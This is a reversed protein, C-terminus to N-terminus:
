IASPVRGTTLPSSLINAAAAADQVAYNIGDGGILSMVHAADGILLLGPRYWRPLRDSEVRWYHTSNGTRCCTFADPLGRMSALSRRDSSMWGPPACPKIRRKPMGYGLQWHDTRELTLLGRGMNFGGVIGPDGPEKPLRFWLIDLPLSTKIRAPLQSLQRLRSFRGDAGV